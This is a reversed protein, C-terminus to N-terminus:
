LCQSTHWAQIFEAWHTATTFRPLASPGYFQRKWEDKMPFYCSLGHLRNMAWTETTKQPWPMSELTNNQVVATSVATKVHEAATKIDDPMDTLTSIQHAFDYLDLYTDHINLHWDNNQDIHITNNVAIAILPNIAPMHHLLRIALTDLHALLAPLESTKVIGIQDPYGVTDLHQIHYHAITHALTEPHMSSSAEDLYFLNSSRFPVAWTINEHTVIYKSYPVLEAMVEIMGMMCADLYIIDLTHTRTIWALADALNNASMTTSSCHDCLMGGIDDYAKSSGHNPQAPHLNPSWGGGHGIFHLISAPTPLHTQAWAAFRKITMPSATDVEGLPFRDVGDTYNTRFQGDPKIRYYASDGKTQGDWFAAICLNPNHQMAQELRAFVEDCYPELDNDCAMYVMVSLYKATPALPITM